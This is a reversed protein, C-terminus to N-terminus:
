KNTSSFHNLQFQVDKFMKMRRDALLLIMDCLDSLTKVQWLRVTDKFAQLYVSEVQERFGMICVVKTHVDLEFLYLNSSHPEKSQYFGLNFLDNMTLM